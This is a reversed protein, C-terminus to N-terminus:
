RYNILLKQLETASSPFINLNYCLLDLNYLTRLKFQVYAEEIIGLDSCKWDFDQNNTVSKVINECVADTGTYKQLVLWQDKVDKLRNGNVLQLGLLDVLSTFTTEFDDVLRRIPVRIIKDHDIVDQYLKERHVWHEFWYSLMERMQWVPISNPDANFQKSFKDKVQSFLIDMNFVSIKTLRNYLLLLRDHESPVLLIVNDFYDIVKSIYENYSNQESYLTGHTRVFPTYMDSSLYTEITPSNFFKGDFLHEKFLHSSGNPLFPLSDDTLNGTFYFLSWHLFTGYGGPPYMILTTNKKQLLMPSSNM